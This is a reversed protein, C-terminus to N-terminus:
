KYSNDNKNKQYKVANRMLTLWKNDGEIAIGAEESPTKGDLNENTKIFDQDPNVWHEM